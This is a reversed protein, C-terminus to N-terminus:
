SLPDNVVITEERRPGTSILAVPAASLEEIRQIYRCAEKPLDEFATIGRISGQWGPLEEYVPTLNEACQHWHPVNEYQTGTSDRYGVAIRLPHIGDLVDLKMLAHAGIGNMRVAERVVVSDFWGCRRRRGTTAGFEKGVEQLREGIADKLETPFPGSGVRTTYAKTIGIVKQIRTPGVGGGTCAGGAVTNSSTVYPYTGHDIDLGAGQAGEFLVRKGQDLAENILLSTDCLFPKVQAYLALSEEFIAQTQFPKCNSGYHKLWFNKEELVAELRKLFPKQMSTEFDGFRVGRRAAKDEYAPGIGKGTTGLKGTGRHIERLRDFEKHYPMVMHAAYSIKLMQELAVNQKHLGEMEQILAFPEVVVGAALVVPISTQFVGSPILHLVFQKDEFMVTHGANDGGQYRVVMDTNATLLDVIKGKGEDGWQSGAVVYGPMVDTFSLSPHYKSLVLFRALGGIWYILAFCPISNPAILSPTPDAPYTKQQASGRSSLGLMSPTTITGVCM